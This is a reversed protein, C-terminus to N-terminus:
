VELFRTFYSNGEQMPRGVIRLPVKAAAAALAVEITRKVEIIRGTMLLWPGRQVPQSNFFMEDVGNGVVRVKGPPVAFLYSALHSEWSTSVLIADAETYSDWALRETLASPLLRRALAIVVKQAFLLHKPRSGTSSLLESMVVPLGRQHALRLYSVTPRGFFHLIDGRQQPDWWRLFENDVGIESLARSTNEILVQMGGHALAFPLRYDILVKM